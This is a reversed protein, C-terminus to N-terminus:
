DFGLKYGFGKVNLIVSPRNPDPEIKQRLLYVYKKVDEPSVVGDAWLADKIEAPSFVRGPECALLKLLEFEKQSLAIQQKDLYVCKARDDLTLPGRRLPNEMPAAADPTLAKVPRSRFKWGLAATAGLGLMGVLSFVGAWLMEQAMQSEEGQLSIGMRVYAVSPDGAALSVPALVDWYPGGTPHVERILQLRTPASGTPPLVKLGLDAVEQVWLGGDVIVQVYMVAGRVTRQALSVMADTQRQQLFYSVQDAFPMVILRAKEIAHADLVANLRLLYAGAALLLVVGAWACATWFRRMMASKIMDCRAGRELRERAAM